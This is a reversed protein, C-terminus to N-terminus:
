YENRRIIRAPVGVAICDDPVDNIVVANAGIIANNGVKINGVIKAGAYITVNNGISPCRDHNQGLTVNQYITVGKGVNVDKGIIIGVPHPFKIISKINARGSIICNYKKYMRYNYFDVLLKRGKIYNSHSKTYMKFIKKSIDMWPIIRKIIEKVM